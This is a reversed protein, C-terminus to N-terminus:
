LCSEFGNIENLFNVANEISNIITVNGKWSDFFVQEAETLKQQSSFKKGHKIEILYCKGQYGLCIDPCGKGLSSLVLVSAGCKRFTEVIEKQNADVRKPMPM